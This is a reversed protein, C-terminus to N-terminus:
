LIVPNASSILVKIKSQLAVLDVSCNWADAKISQLSGDFMDEHMGDLQEVQQDLSDLRGRINELVDLINKKELEKNHQDLTKIVGGDVGLIEPSEFVKDFKKSVTTANCKEYNKRIAKLERRIKKVSKDRMNAGAAGTRKEMLNALSQRRHLDLGPQKNLILHKIANLPENNDKREILKKLGETWLYAETANKATLRLKQENEENYVISFSTQRLEDDSRSDHLQNKEIRIMEELPIRTQEPDKKDSFWMVYKNDKSLQFIRFKPSGRRGYKMLACGKHLEVLADTSYVPSSAARMRGAPIALSGRPSTADDDSLLNASSEQAAQRLKNAQEIVYAAAEDQEDVTGGGVDVDDMSTWLDFMEKGFEGLDQKESDTLADFNGTSKANLVTKMKTSLNQLNPDEAMKEHTLDSNKMTLAALMAKMEQAEKDMDSDSWLNMSNPNFLKPTASKKEGELVNPNSGRSKSLTGPGGKGGMIVSGRSKKAPQSRSPRQVKKFLSGRRKHVRKRFSFTIPCKRDLIYDIIDQHKKHEVWRDNVKVIRSLRELGYQSELEENQISSVVANKGQPDMVVSFGLPKAEFTHEVLNEIDFFKEYAQEIQPDTLAKRKLFDKIKSRPVSKVEAKRILSIAREVARPPSGSSSSKSPAEEAEAM